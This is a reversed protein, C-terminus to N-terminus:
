RPPGFRAGYVVFLEFMPSLANSGSNGVVKEAFTGLYLKLTLALLFDDAM